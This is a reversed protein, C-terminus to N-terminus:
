EQLAWKRAYECAPRILRRLTPDVAIREIFNGVGPIDIPAIKDDYVKECDAIFEEFVSDEATALSAAVEEGVKLFDGFLHVGESPSVRKDAVAAVFADAAHDINEKFKTPM